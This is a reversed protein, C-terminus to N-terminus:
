VTTCTIATFVKPQPSLRCAWNQSYQVRPAHGSSISPSTTSSTWKFLAGDGLVVRCSIVPQTEDRSEHVFFFRISSWLFQRFLTKSGTIRSAATTIVKSLKCGLDCRTLEFGAKSILYAAIRSQFWFLIFLGSKFLCLNWSSHSPLDHYIAFNRKKWRSKMEFHHSSSHHIIIIRKNM